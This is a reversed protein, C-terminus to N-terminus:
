KDGYKRTEGRSDQAILCLIQWNCQHDVAYQMIFAMAEFETPFAKTSLSYKRGVSEGRKVMAYEIKYVDHHAM